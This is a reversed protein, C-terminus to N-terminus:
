RNGGTKNKSCLINKLLRLRSSKSNQGVFKRIDNQITPFEMRIKQIVAWDEQPNKSDLRYIFPRVLIEPMGSILLPVGRVLIKMAKNPLEIADNEPIGSQYPILGCLIKKWEKESIQKAKPIVRINQWRSLQLIKKGSEELPGIFWIQYDSGARALQRALSTVRDIDIRANLFGWFLLVNRESSLPAKYKKEAWPHFIWKKTRRPIFKLIKNSVALVGESSKCTQRLAWRYGHQFLSFKSHWAHDNFVTLIKQKPFLSALFYYDYNFNIIVDQTQSHKKLELAISNKEFAGNLRHLMPTIRLRHHLIQLGQRLHVGKEAIRAPSKSQWPFRPKEFFMVTHGQSALLRALEHRLRPTEGWM